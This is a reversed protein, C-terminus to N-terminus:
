FFFFFFEGNIVLFRLNWYMDSAMATGYGCRYWGTDAKKVQAITMYLGAPPTREYHFSYRGNQPGNETTELLVDEKKECQGKCLFKSGERLRSYCRQTFNKGETQTRIFEYIKGSM